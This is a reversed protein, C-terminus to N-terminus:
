PAKKVWYEFKPVAYVTLYDTNVVNRTLGPVEAPMDSLETDLKRM